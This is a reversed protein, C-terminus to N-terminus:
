TDVDGELNAAWIASIVQLKREVSRRVCGITAAIETTSCGELKLLAIRRLDTDGTENLRDLQQQLEDAMQIAFEPDPERSLLQSLSGVIEAGRSGMCNGDGSESAGTGGRGGRRQRNLHRILDVSKNTTIAMLLPWLNGRDTLQTFRGERARLCFSRFASLAVDEEDAVTRAAGALKQRALEVMRLFYNEWLHQAAEAEGAKLQRIWTTISDRIESV